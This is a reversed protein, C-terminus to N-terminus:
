RVSSWASIGHMPNYIIFDKLALPGAEETTCALMPNVKERFLPAIKKFNLKTPDSRESHKAEVLFVEGEREIVFDIEVGNTDRFYFMNKGAELGEKVYETLVFNEWIHGLHLSKELVERSHINLLAALLGNDCFYVKPAKILRKGLNRYYPPLLIIVGSIELANV